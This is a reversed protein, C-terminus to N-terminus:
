FTTNFLHKKWMKWTNKNNLITFLIKPKRAGWWSSLYLRRPNSVALYCFRIDEEQIDELSTM